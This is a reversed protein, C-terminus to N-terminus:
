TPQSQESPATTSSALVVEKRALTTWDEDNQRIKVFLSGPGKLLIPVQNMAISFESSGKGTEDRISFELNRTAQFPAAEGESLAEVGLELRYDGDKAKGQLWLSLHMTVPFKSLIINNGYVGILIAKGNEEKRIDDCVLASAIITEGSM